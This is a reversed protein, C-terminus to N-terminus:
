ARLRKGVALGIFAIIRYITGIGVLVLLNQRLWDLHFGTIKAALEVNYLYAFPEIMQGFYVEALWTGPSARWLWEMHWQRVKSLPPAAGSLIGVILSIMTALLPADERRVVMSVCSALGYICYFYLLNAVFATGWPIVPVALLLIFTTFHLCGLVMRPVVAVNKALFYAVRSHGAEAERRYLLMEESFVKVGPAGSVLGIAIVTLLALQPVSLNDTAVSLIEYPANYIGTFLIGKKSEQALGLLLGALSALSMEFWFASKTRWQQLMARRFCLWFQRLRPAGRQRLLERKMSKTEAISVRNSQISAHKSKIEAQERSNAWNSILSAKSINGAPKYPRGNGTIIDTVVDGANRHEPFQYGIDEFFKQVEAEPGEYIIQGNALLILDDLMEFIEIRPQHIIVIISIGLRAIAKLTRMISSASTADLGSTPEDLFIAMPAAALEMGISVRKRQGGSIVPKGVSGVLSNRVHSLELCDIVSHVHARIDVDAWTRPLRIRASHLINEYVTLEPLVIDDQPVYGILKRYQKIKGPANNVMVAGGTNTTKGMLVNVFTSKGAGSGGMVATLSGREISGTVNQLIPRAAGKPHFSLDSYAFSLGFHSADTAKRMSDIFARLQPSLGSDLSERPATSPREIAAEFGTWFTDARPMYTSQMPGAEPDAENLIEKYGATTDTLRSLGKTKNQTHAVRQNYFRKRITLWMLGCLIFIDFIALVVSPILFRQFKSKEPCYSGIACPTPTAAGPQCYTGAPCPFTETGGRPCYWGAQCIVPEFPGMGINAGNFTCVKGNVRAEQCETVPPCFQPLSNATNNACLFGERCGEQQWSTIGQIQVPVGGPRWCPTADVPAEGMDIAAAARYFSTSFTTQNNGTCAQDYPSLSNLNSDVLTGSGSDYTLAKSTDPGNSDDYIPLTVNNGGYLSNFWKGTTVTYVGQTQNGICQWAADNSSARRNNSNDNNQDGNDTGNNVETSELPRLSCLCAGTDLFSPGYNSEQPYYPDQPLDARSLGPISTDSM